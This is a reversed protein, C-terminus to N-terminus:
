LDAHKEEQGPLSPERRLYEAARAIFDQAAQSLYRGERYCASITWHPGGELQFCAVRRNGEAYWRPLISCSLGKEVMTVNARNSATELLIHPSVGAAAFFPDIVDRQTSDSYMLSLPVQGLDEARLLTLPAGPPAARAALPSSLPAILLFDERVIPRLTLDLVKEAAMSVFGVDLEDRRLRELQLSVRMERPTVTVGPYAAYFAPYIDMFMEMGREPAFAMSLEGRRHDTLDQIIRYAEEKLGLMQRAYRLYIEGAETPVLRNRARHFLRVGLERELKLLQQDLASQTIFLGEAAKTVSGTEAIALMYVIQRTEM